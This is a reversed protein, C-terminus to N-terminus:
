IESDPKFISAPLSVVSSETSHKDLLDATDQPKVARAPSDMYERDQQAFKRRAYLTFLACLFAIASGGIHGNILGVIGFALFIYTFAIM